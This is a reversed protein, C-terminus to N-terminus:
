SDTDISPSLKNKVVPGTNYVLKKTMTPKVGRDKVKIKLLEIENLIFDNGSILSGALQCDMTMM